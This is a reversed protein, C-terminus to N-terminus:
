RKEKNTYMIHIRYHHRRMGMKTDIIISSTWSTKQAGGKSTPLSWMQSYIYIYIYIYINCM